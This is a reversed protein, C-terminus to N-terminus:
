TRLVKFPFVMLDIVKSQKSKKLNGADIVLDPQYKGQGSGRQITFQRLVEKIKTSASKGSINASSEALPGIHKALGLVFGHSPIRIGITTNSNKAPLVVTVKGPWVKKLFKEQEKNIHVLKKAMKIDSVFVPIPKSKPRKKIKYLREVAKKNAADCILGYVTDTPCILARGEKIAEVAEQFIERYNRINLKLIEM